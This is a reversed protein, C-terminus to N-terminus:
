DKKVFSNIMKKYKDELDIFKIGMGNFEDSDIVIRIVEGKIIVTDESDPFKFDLELVTGVALPTQTELFIGSESIDKTSYCFKFDINNCFEEGLWVAVEERTNNSAWVKIESRETKRKETM